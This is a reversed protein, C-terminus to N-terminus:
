GSISIPVLMRGSSLSRGSFLALLQAAMQTDLTHVVHSGRREVDCLGIPRWLRRCPHSVTSSLVARSVVLQAAVRYNGLM